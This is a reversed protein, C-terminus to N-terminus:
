LKAQDTSNTKLPTRNFVIPDLRRELAVELGTIKGEFDTIFNIIRDQSKTEVKNEVV